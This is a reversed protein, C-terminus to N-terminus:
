VIINASYSGTSYISVQRALSLERIAAIIHDMEPESLILLWPSLHSLHSLHFLHSLNKDLM